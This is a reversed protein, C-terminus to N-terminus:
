VLGCDSVRILEAVCELVPTQDFSSLRIQVEHNKVDLVYLTWPDRDPRKISFPISRVRAPKDATKPLWKGHSYNPGLHLRSKWLSVSDPVKVATMEQDTSATVRHKAPVDVTRGDSLRKARVQGESVNLTTSALSAEVEFKTGLVEFTASRTHVLMPRGKPQPKVNASFNGEKLRLLKQDHDSFTLMSNGSITVTSGDRFTLEVWSEPTMGEVTGGSVNAGVVLDEALRGGDGTWLVSGSLGTIKAIETVTEQKDPRLFFVSVLLVLVAAIGAVLQWRAIRFGAQTSRPEIMGTSIASQVRKVFPDEDLRSDVAAVFLSSTRLEDKAQALLDATELQSQLELQREPHDHILAALESLEASSLEEDLLRSMLDEFRINDM